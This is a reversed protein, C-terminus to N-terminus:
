CVPLFGQHLQFVIDQPKQRLARPGQQIVDLKHIDELLRLDRGLGDCLLHFHRLLRLLLDISRPFPVPGGRDATRNRIEHQVVQSPHVGHVLEGEVGVEDEEVRGDRVATRGAALVHGLSALGDVVEVRLGHVLVGAPTEELAVFEEERELEAGADHFALLLDVFRFEVEEAVTADDHIPRLLWRIGCRGPEVRRRPIVDAFEVFDGHEGADDACECLAMFRPFLPKHCRLWLLHRKGILPLVEHAELAHADKSGEAQVADVESRASEHRLVKPLTEGRGGGEVQLEDVLGGGRGGGKNEDEAWSHVGSCLDHLQGFFEAAIQRVASESLSLAGHGHVHHVLPRPVPRPHQERVAMQHNRPHRIQLFQNVLIALRVGM